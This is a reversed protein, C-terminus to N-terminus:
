AKAYIKKGELVVRNCISTADASCKEFENKSFILIDKFLGLDMLARYGDSIEQFRDKTYQDIVILIDLDSEEDPHGWAYSGFIYIALPNYQSVLRRKVESLIKENIM